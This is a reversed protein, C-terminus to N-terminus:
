DRQDDGAANSCTAARIVRRDAAVTSRPAGRAIFAAMTKGVGSAQGSQGACRVQTDVQHAGPPSGPDSAAGAAGARAALGTVAASSGGAGAALRGRAAGR